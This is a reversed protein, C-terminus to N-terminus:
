PRCDSPHTASSGSGARNRCPGPTAPLCAPGGRGRTSPRAGDSARDPRPADAPTRWFLEAPHFSPGPASEPLWGRPWACSLPPWLPELPPGSPWSAPRWAAPSVACSVPLCDTNKLKEGGALCAATSVEAQGGDEKRAGGHPAGRRRGPDPVAGHGQLDKRNEQHYRRDGLLQPM